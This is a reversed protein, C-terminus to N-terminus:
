NWQDGREILDDALSGATSEIFALWEVRDMNEDRTIQSSVVVIVELDSNSVGVPLELKLIGDHGVHTKVKIAEM